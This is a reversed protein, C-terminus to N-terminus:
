YFKKLLHIIKKLDAENINEKPNIKYIKMQKRGESVLNPYEIKNGLVFSIYTEDKKPNYILYCFWKNKYYYFPTNFKWAETLGTENIFFQRLYLLASQSPESITLFYNDPHSQL